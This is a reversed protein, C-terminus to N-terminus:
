SWKGGMEDLGSKGLDEPTMAVKFEVRANFLLYWPEALAPIGSPDELNVVMVAGREGEHETFYVAEPRTEELIRHMKSGASGDRVADNFDETPIHVFLMMRM